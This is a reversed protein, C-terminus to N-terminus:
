RKNIKVKHIDSSFFLKCKFELTASYGTRSCHIECKGGLEIWPVSLISRAYASPFTAVYEEDHDLLTVTGKGVNHVAVQQNLFLNINLTRSTTCAGTVRM